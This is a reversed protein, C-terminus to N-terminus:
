YLSAEAAAEEYAEAFQSYEAALAQSLAYLKQLLEEPHDFAIELRGKELVIGKPLGSLGAAPFQETGPIPVAQARIRDRQQALDRWIRRKRESVQPLPTGDRYAELRRILDQRDVLFTRGAQYGGFLHMLRIAQRRSLDFLQEISFRDILPSPSHVLTTLIEPIRQFWSPHDPMFLM